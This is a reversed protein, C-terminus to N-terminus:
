VLGGVGVSITVEVGILVTEEVDVIDNVKAVVTGGEDVVAFVREGEGVVDFVLKDVVTEPLTTVVAAVLLPKM